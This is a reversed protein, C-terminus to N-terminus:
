ISFLIDITVLFAFLVLCALLCRYARKLDEYRKKTIHSLNYIASELQGLIKKDDLELIMKSFESEQLDYIHDFTTFVRVKKPDVANQEQIFEQISLQPDANELALTLNKNKNGSRSKNLLRILFARSKIPILCKVGLFSSFLFLVLFLFSVLYGIVALVFLNPNQKSIIDKITESCSPFILALVAVLISARDYISSKLRDISEHCYTLYQIKESIYESDKVM